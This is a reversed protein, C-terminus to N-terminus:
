CRPQDQMSAISDFLIRIVNNDVVDDGIHQDDKHDNSGDDDDADDDDINQSASAVDVVCCSCFLLCVFLCLLHLLWWLPQLYIRYLRHQRM